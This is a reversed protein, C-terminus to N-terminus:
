TALQLRLITAYASQIHPSTIRTSKNSLIIIDLPKSAVTEEAGARLVSIRPRNLQFSRNAEQLSQSDSAIIYAVVALDAVDLVFSYARQVRKIVGM